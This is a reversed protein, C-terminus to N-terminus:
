PCVPAPAPADTLFLKAPGLLLTGDLARVEVVLAEADPAGPASPASLTLSAAQGAEGAPGFIGYYRLGLSPSSGWQGQFRQQTCRQELSLDDGQVEMLLRAGPAADLWAAATTSGAAAGVGTAACAPSASAGPACASAAQAGFAQLGDAAASLGTGTGGVGPGCASLAWAQAVVLLGIRGSRLLRRARQLPLGRFFASVANM